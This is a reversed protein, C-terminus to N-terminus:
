ADAPATCAGAQSKKVVTTRGGFAINLERVNDAVGHGAVCLALTGNLAAIGDGGRARGDAHFVIRNDLAAINPSSLAVLPREISGTRALPETSERQGSDDSDVFVIWAAWAGAGNACSLQDASRCLVAGHNSRIAETRALHVAATLESAASALRSGTIATEFGPVATALLVSTIALVIMTEILTFGPHHRSASSDPAEGHRLGGTDLAVARAWGRPNYHGIDLGALSAPVIVFRGQALVAARGADDADPETDARLAALGFLGVSLMLAPLPLGILRLSAPQRRHPAQM